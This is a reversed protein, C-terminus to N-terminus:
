RQTPAIKSASLLGKWQPISAFIQFDVQPTIHRIDLFCNFASLGNEADFKTRCANLSDQDTLIMQRDRRSAM